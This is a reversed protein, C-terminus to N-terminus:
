ARLQRGTHDENLRSTLVTNERKLRKTEARLQKLETRLEQTSAEVLLDQRESRDAKAWKKIAAVVEDRESTLLAIEDQAAAFLREMEVLRQRMPTNDSDPAQLSPLFLRDDTPHAYRSM